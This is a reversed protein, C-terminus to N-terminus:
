GQREVRALLRRWSTSIDISGDVLRIITEIKDTDTPHTKVLIEDCRRPPGIPTARSSTPSSAPRASSRWCRRGLAPLRRDARHRHGPGRGARGELELAMTLMDERDGPTILLTRDRIYPAAHEARM